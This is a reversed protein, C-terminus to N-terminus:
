SIYQQSVFVSDKGTWRIETGEQLTKLSKVAAKKSKATAFHIFGKSDIFQIQVKM